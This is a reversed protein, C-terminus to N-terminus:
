VGSLGVEKPSSWFGCSSRGSAGHALINDVEYALPM